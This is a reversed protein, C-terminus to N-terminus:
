VILIRFMSDRAEVRSEIMKGDVKRHLADGRRDLRVADRPGHAGRSLHVGAGARGTTSFGEWVNIRIQNSM